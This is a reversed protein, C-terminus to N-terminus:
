RSKIFRIVDDQVEMMYGPDKKKIYKELEDVRPYDGTGDFCRADDILIVHPYKHHKFIAGLEEYIPCEKEGKATFGASYHGDLWFLATSDLKPVIDHLVKGSDGHFLHVHKDKVFRSVTKEWLEKGLEISYIKEFNDLQTFVMEGLFTGTEM